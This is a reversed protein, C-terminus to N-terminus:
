VTNEPHTAPLCLDPPSFPERLFHECESAQVPHSFYYGQVHRCGADVLLRLQDITEVGEAIVELQLQHAMAIISRAIALDDADHAIDRVFAQDLKLRDVPFRKLYSLNSYGTGFDDISLTIHHQRLQAMIGITTEPDQMSASETLEVELQSGELGFASLAADVQSLLDPSSFQSASVNVAVLPPQLGQQQWDRVQRCAKRLVQRGLERMLGCVEAMPIFIEPRLLGLQPHQWRVLAELGTVKGSSVEVQPQYHLILEESEGHLARRLDSELQLRQRAEESLISRYVAYGKEKSSEASHLAAEAAQILQLPDRADRLFVATGGYAHLVFHKEEFEIPKRLLELLLPVQATLENDDSLELTLAFSNDSIHALLQSQNQWQRLRQVLVTIVHNMVADGCSDRIEHFRPIGIMVLALLRRSGNAPQHCHRHLQELFFKRNPLGTVPDFNDLFYAKQEANQQETVDIGCLVIRSSHSSSNNLSSISWMITRSNRTSARWVHGNQKSSKLTMLLHHRTSKIYEPAVCCSWFVAGILGLRPQDLARAAELNLHLIRGQADLVIILAKATDQITRMMRREAELEAAIREKEEQHRSEQMARAIAAPLRTMRDKLIYDTAGSVLTAVAREEGLSGSVFIFPISPARANRITLAEIGGFGPITYDALIIDPKFSVLSIIFDEESSVQHLDCNISSHSLTHRLLEADQASDELLLVRLPKM